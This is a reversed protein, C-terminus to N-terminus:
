ICNRKRYIFDRIKKCFYCAFYKRRHVRRIFERKIYSWLSELNYQESLRYHERFLLNGQLNSFCQKKLETQMKQVSRRPILKTSDISLIVTGSKRLVTIKEVETESFTATLEENVQLEEFVEFLKMKIEM